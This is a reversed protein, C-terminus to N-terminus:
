DELKEKLQSMVFQYSTIDEQNPFRLKKDDEMIASKELPDALVLRTPHDRLNVTISSGIWDFVEVVIPHPDGSITTVISKLNSLEEPVSVLDEEETLLSMLKFKVIAKQFLSPHEGEGHDSLLQKFGDRLPLVMKVREKDLAIMEQTEAILEATM